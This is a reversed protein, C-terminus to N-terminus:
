RGLLNWVSLACSSCIFSKSRRIASINLLISSESLQQKKKKAKNDRKLFKKTLHNTKLKTLSLTTKSRNTSKVARRFGDNSNFHQHIDSNQSFQTAVSILPGFHYPCFIINPPVTNAQSSTMSRTSKKLSQNSTACSTTFTSTLKWIICLQLCVFYM